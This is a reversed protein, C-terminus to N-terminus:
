VPSHPLTPIYVRCSRSLSSLSPPSALGGTVSCLGLVDVVMSTLAERRREREREAFISAELFNKGELFVHLSAQLM